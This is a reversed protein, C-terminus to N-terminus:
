GLKDLIDKVFGIKEPDNLTAMIEELNFKTNDYHESSTKILGAFSTLYNIIHEASETIADFLMNYEEEPMAEIVQDLIHNLILSDYTKAANEFMKETISINTYAALIELNTYIEM